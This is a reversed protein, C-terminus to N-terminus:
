VLCKKVHEKLFIYEDKIKLDKLYADNGMKITYKLYVETIKELSLLHSSRM